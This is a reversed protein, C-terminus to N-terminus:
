APAIPYDQYFLVNLYLHFAHLYGWASIAPRYAPNATLSEPGTLKGIVYPVTILASIAAGRGERMLWRAGARVGREPAHWIWEYCAVSLPLTVALEKSNRRVRSIM